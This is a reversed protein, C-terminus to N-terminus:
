CRLSCSTEVEYKLNDILRTDGVKAAVALLISGHVEELPTLDGADVLSIYDIEVDRMAGRVAEKIREADREGEDLLRRAEALGRSLSLGREREARSLYANRSSLALGDADRVIPMEVIEIGFDLDRVMRKIIACQQADKQGFYARHPLTANFLKTVVTAVGKFFHPRSIGCLGDQLREVEVYTAYGDPYMARTRPAYICDVGLREALALDDDWTRPYRDFDEHPAFQAPNVFITLIVADDREVAAEILSAHGEHLAGMTPVVGVTRGNCRQELAWERMAASERIIKM